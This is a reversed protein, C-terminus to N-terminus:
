LGSSKPKPSKKNGEKVGSTRETILLILIETNGSEPERFMM